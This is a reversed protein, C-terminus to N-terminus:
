VAIKRALWDKMAKPLAHLRAFEQLEGTTAQRTRYVRAFDAVTVRAAEKSEIRTIPDGAQLWGERLVRLYFGTRGSALFTKHFDPVGVAASLKSCPFRPQTVLFRAGGMELEDGILVERELLGQVTLNEGFLGPRLTSRGLHERWFDINEQTYAYVAKDPGGHVARDGQGDGELNGVRAMVPGDVPQKFIGTWRTRGDIRAEIPMSVNVSLLRV